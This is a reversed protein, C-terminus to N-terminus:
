ANVPDVSWIERLIEGLQWFRYTRIERGYTTQLILENMPGCTPCGSDSEAEIEFRTDDPLDLGLDKAVRHGWLNLAEDYTM